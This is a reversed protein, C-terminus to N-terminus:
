AARNNKLHAPQIPRRDIGSATHPACIGVTRNDPRKEPQAEQPEDEESADEGVGLCCHASISIQHLLEGGDIDSAATVGQVYEYMEGV